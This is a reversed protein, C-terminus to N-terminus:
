LGEANPFRHKGMGTVTVVLGRITGSAYHGVKNKLVWSFFIHGSESRM